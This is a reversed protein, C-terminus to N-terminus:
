HRKRTKRRIDRVVREATAKKPESKKRMKVGERNLHALVGGKSDVPVRLPRGVM